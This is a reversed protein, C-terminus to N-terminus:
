LSTGSNAPPHRSGVDGSGANDHEGGTSGVWGVLWCQVTAQSGRRQSREAAQKRQQRWSQRQLRGEIAPRELLTLIEADSDKDVHIPGGVHTQEHITDRHLAVVILSRM